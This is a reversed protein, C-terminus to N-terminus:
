DQVVLRTRMRTGDTFALDVVYLGPALTSTDMHNGNIQLAAAQGTTSMATARLVANSGSVQVHDTAPNPFLEVSGHTTSPVNTPTDATMCLGDVAGYSADTGLVGHVMITSSATNAVFQGCASKWVYSDTTFPATFVIPGNVQIRVAFPGDLHYTSDPLMIPQQAYNFCVTYTAGPVTPVVQSIGEPHGINQWTGGTPSAIPQSMWIHSSTIVLPGIEDNLDPSGDGIFWGPAATYAAEVADLDGNVFLNGECQAQAVSLCVAAILLTPCRM